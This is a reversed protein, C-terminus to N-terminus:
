DKIVEVLELRRFNWPNLQMNKVRDPNFLHLTVYHYIPAIAQERMAIAEAQRLLMTRKDADAEWGAAALLQDYKPNNYRGDNNGNDKLFKDLFTTADLYDGFWGARAVAFDQRQLRDGVVKVEQGELPIDVGLVTKWTYAIKAMTDEHGGNTNYLLKIKGLGQGDAYGAEALLARAADPDYVAAEEVPPEYGPLVGPPVFTKALPQELRTVNDVIDTRPIAMSFARRVRPDHFPNPSGDLFKEQCNFVLFYTGASPVAHVDNRLGEKTQQYLAPAVSGGPPVSPLWDVEGREYMLLQGHVEPVIIELISNNKTAANNWYHENRVMLLDRRFRRRQLVYPGNCPIAPLDATADEVPRVWYPDQILTGTDASISTQSEVARAHVPVYTIFACMELFYTSPKELTVVLTHEDPTAIGVTRDFHDYARNLWRAAEPHNIQVGRAYQSLASTTTNARGVADTFDGEAALQVAEDLTFYASLLAHPAQRELQPRIAARLGAIRKLAIAIANDDDLAAAQLTNATPGTDVGGPVIRRLTNGARRPQRAMVFYSAEDLLRLTDLLEHEGDHRIRLRIIDRVDSFEAAMERPKVPSEDDAEEVQSAIREIQSIAPEFLYAQISTQRWKFFAEAGRIIWLLQTYDAALDPLLARRWAYKFDTSRVPEGNSWRAEKRIHFTYTLKDESIEYSEAAAPEPTMEPLKIRMLPELLNEMVRIDHSWSLRQPDLTNHTSSSAFVLDARQPQSAGTVLLVAVAVDFILIGILWRM